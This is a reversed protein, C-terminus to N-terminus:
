TVVALLDRNDMCYYVEGDLRFEYDGFDVFFVKDGKKVGQEKLEDNLYKVHGYQQIYGHTNSEIKTNYFNDPLSFGKIQYDEKKAKIPQVLVHIHNCQWEDQPTARYMVILDNEIRYHGKEKDMLYIPDTKVGKYVQYMLVTHVVLVEYGVKIKTVYDRPVAIVKGIRNTHRTKDFSPDIDLTLTGYTVKDKLPKKIEVTFENLAKLM